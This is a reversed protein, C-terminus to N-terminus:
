KIKILRTLLFKDIYQVVSQANIVKILNWWDYHHNYRTKNKKFINLFVLFYIFSKYGLITIKMRLMLFTLDFRVLETNIHLYRIFLSQPTGSRCLNYIKNRNKRM